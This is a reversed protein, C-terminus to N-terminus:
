NEAVSLVYLIFDGDQMDFKMATMDLFEKYGSLTYGMKEEAYVIAFKASEEMVYLAEEKTNCTACIKSHSNYPSEYNSVVNFKM